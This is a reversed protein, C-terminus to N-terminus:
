AGTQERNSEHREIAELAEFHARSTKVVGRLSAGCKPCASADQPLFGGCSPSSCYDRPRARGVLFGGVIGAALLSLEVVIPANHWRAAAPVFSALMMGAFLAAAIGAFLGFYTGVFAYSRRVRFAIQGSSERRELEAVLARADDYRARPVRLQIQIYAFGPLLAAHNKGPHQYPIGEAELVAVVQDVYQADSSQLLVVFDDPSPVVSTATM